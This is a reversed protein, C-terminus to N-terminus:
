RQRGVWTPEAIGLRANVARAMVFLLDSLRNLYRISSEAVTELEALAVVRREARRCVTRGVHLVAAASAGGPLIFNRLPALEKELADIWQELQLVEGDGVQPFAQGRTELKERQPAALESGLDFLESQIRIIKGRLDDDTLEACVWGLVSNLEDVAGYAEIRAANKRVRSGGFLSTLGGDGGRTYVKM